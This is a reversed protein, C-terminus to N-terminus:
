ATDYLLRQENVQRPTRGPFPGYPREGAAIEHNLRMLRPLVEYPDDTVDEPWGYAAGVARDLERHAAALDAFGGEDVLNYVDTLGRHGDCAIAREAVVARAAVAIRERQNETSEPFPFTEFVTTNTYRPDGKLTSGRRDAWITHASSALVGLHWDEDLAIVVVADGACWTPDAWVFLTRKGVRGVTVYRPLGALAKRMEGRPRGFRWWYARFREDNNREREPKVRERVISLAAPFREAEELAMEGFDIIWRRPCQLPDEAIDEGVLYPRVVQAYDADERALLAQAEHDGVVFGEGVPIPGQFAVGKNPALRQAAITSLPAPVLDAAIPVSVAAGDLRFGAPLASPQHLWNVLAVHVKAEGPWKQSSVADVIVGGRQRVYDLSAERARGQGVSNTGVLGARGGATLQDAARRFWYTCYDRIGTQFTRELWALYDDGLDRRLRQSGNFPPNGIIVDAAPWDVVLADAQVVQQDLDPLPLPPEPTGHRDAALKHGMWLVLRTVKAAFPDIEIGHLATIPVQPLDLPDPPSVGDRTALEVVRRRAQAELERLERYAVYLFNGCGCAPDLVRVACLDALVQRAQRVSDAAEVRERWPVVISPGVIKMIDSEHTYHVGFQRRTGPQAVARERPVFGELLSGFITPEVETWDYDAVQALLELEERTLHVKAPEAFLGGNVHPADAYVGGKARIERHNLTEFLWGLEAASSRSGTADDLLDAVIHRVPDGPLLGLGTAFLCWVVQLVFGQLTDADAADRDALSRYLAVTREAAETTLERRTAAFVPPLSALFLLTEYCQPLEALSFTARPTTPFRGPEWVEFHHFACLVVYDVAPRQNDPDASHRWYELAQERHAALRPGESPRKMEILCRRPWLADVFGRSGDPRPQDSEFQVGAARRDTGFCALLENLFTQAEAHESGDYDHWRGAFDRLAGQVEQGALATM